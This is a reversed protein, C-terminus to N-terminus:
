APLLQWSVDRTMGSTRSWLQDCRWRYAHDGVLVCVANSGAPFSIPFGGIPIFGTAQVIATVVTLGPDSTEFVVSVSCGIGVFVGASEWDTATNSSAVGPDSVMKQAGGPDEWDVPRLELATSNNINGHCSWGGFDDIFLTPRTFSVPLPRAGRLARVRYRITRGARHYEARLLTVAMTRRGVSIAANKRPAGPTQFLVRLLTRLEIRRSLTGPSDDFAEIRPSIGRLTLDYLRARGPVRRLTGNQAPQVALAQPAGDFAPTPADAGRAASPLVLLALAASVAIRRRM